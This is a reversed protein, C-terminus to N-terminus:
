ITHFLHNTSKMIKVKDFSTIASPYNGTFYECLGYYYNSPYYFINQIEKTRALESKGEKFEKLVFHSYGKKFSAESMDFEPLNNLDAM